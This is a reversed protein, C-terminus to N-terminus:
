FPTDIKNADEGPKATRSEAARRRVEMARAEQLALAEALKTAETKAQTDLAPATLSPTLEAAIDQDAPAKRMLSPIALALLAVLSIAVAAIAMRSRPKPTHEKFDNPSTALPKFAAPADQKPTSSGHRPNVPDAAHAALARDIRRCLQEISREWDTVAEGPAVEDLWHPIVIMDQRGALALKEIVEDSPGANATFVLLLVKAGGLAHAVSAELTDDPEADRASIWCNFGRAEITSCLTIAADVDKSAYNIFIDAAM